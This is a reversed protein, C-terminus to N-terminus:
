TGATDRMANIQRYAEKRDARSMSRPDRGCMLLYMKNEQHRVFARWPTMLVERAKEPGDVVLVGILSVILGACTMILGFVIGSIGGNIYLGVFLFIIIAAMMIGGINKRSSQSEEHELSM